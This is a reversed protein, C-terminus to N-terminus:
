PEIVLTGTMGDHGVGCYTNCHFPYSGVQSATPTVTVVYNRGPVISSRDAIGAASLGTLGHGNGVSGGGYGDDPVDDGTDLASFTITYTTGVHLTITSPTYYFRQLTVLISQPALSGAVAVRSAVISVGRANSVRLVVTYSGPAAYSHTPNQQTSSSGDGFDWSWSAAGTSADTFAVGAGAQPSAPSFTFAAVPLGSPRALDERGVIFIPDTTANDIVAGYAFLPTSGDGSVVAYANDTVESGAGVTGFINSVQFGAHAGVQKVVPTGLPAGTGSFLAFTVTQAVDSGNYVGVNSRFGLPQAPSAGNALQGVVEVPHAEEDELGPVFQGVTPTPATSYLRSTAELESGSGSFEVAGATNPTGFGSPSAAAIMDNFAKQERPQLTFTLTPASAPCSGVFCRYTATVTEAETYSPNLVRVDSFFPSAFPPSELSAVAPVTVHAALLPAAFGCFITTAILRKVFVEGSLGVNQV